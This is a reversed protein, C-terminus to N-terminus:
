GVAKEDAVTRNRIRLVYFTVLGIMEVEFNMIRLENNIGWNGIM